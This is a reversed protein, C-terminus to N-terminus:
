LFKDTFDGLSFIETKLREVLLEILDESRIVLFFTLGDHSANFTNAYLENGDWIGGFAAASKSIGSGVM